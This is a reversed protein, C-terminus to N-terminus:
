ENRIKCYWLSIGKTEHIKERRLTLIDHGWFQWAWRFLLDIRWDFKILVTKWSFWSDFESSWHGSSRFCLHKQKFQKSKVQSIRQNLKWWSIVHHLTTFWFEKFCPKWVRLVRIHIKAIHLIYNIPLDYFCAYTIAHVYSLCKYFLDQM